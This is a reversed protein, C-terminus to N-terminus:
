ITQFRTSPFPNSGEAEENRVLFFRLYPVIRCDSLRELLGELQVVQAQVVTSNAKKKTKILTVKRVLTKLDGLRLNDFPHNRIYKSKGDDLNLCENPLLNETGASANSCIRM